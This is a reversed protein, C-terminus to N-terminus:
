YLPLHGTFEELRSKEHPGIALVTRTVVSGFETLGQDEVLHCRMGAAKVKDHLEVLEADSTVYVSVKKYNGMFWAYADEDLPIVMERSGPEGRIVVGPQHTFACLAGHASQAGIKGKRMKLDHRVVLMQRYDPEASAAETKEILDSM